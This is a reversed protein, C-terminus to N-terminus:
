WFGMGFYGMEYVGMMIECKECDGVEIVGREECLSRGVVLYEEGIGLGIELKEVM